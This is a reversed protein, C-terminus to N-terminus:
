IKANPYAFECAERARTIVSLASREAIESNYIRLPSTGSAYFSMYIGLDSNLVTRLPDMTNNGDSNSKNDPEINYDDDSDNDADMSSQSEFLPESKIKQFLFISSFKTHM